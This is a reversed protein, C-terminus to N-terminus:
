PISRREAGPVTLPNTQFHMLAKALKMRFLLITLQKNTEIGTVACDRTYQLWLTVM